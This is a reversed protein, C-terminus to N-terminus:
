KNVPIKFGQMQRNDNIQLMYVGTKIGSIQIINLNGSELNKVIVAHGLMDYLTAVAQSSVPGEIRIKEDSSAYVKLKSNSNGSEDNGTTVYSTHIFFRDSTSTNAAVTIKYNGNSLDTFKNFARDELIVKCDSPLNIVKSSFVVEGGNKFDLGVPIIMKNFDYNPLAQIAFPIGYDDVLLTYVALDGSGKFMGADYTPDLGTTMSSNFAIVTSSSLNNAAVELNITPWQSESKLALANNHLQMAPTFNVTTATPAMKVFFAQGLQVQYSPSANSITTYQGAQENYADPKEWVYIGYAPDINSNTVGNLTLFNNANSNANIHIASTYLNGVCNWSDATTTASQNGSYPIGTLTVVSNTGTRTAYGIGSGVNGSQSNTYFDSWNNLGPEYGMMGRSTGNTEINANAGLFNAITQGSLPSSVLHWGGATMWREADTTGSGTVASTILSGTGTADSQIILGNTTNIETAGSVTLQKLAPISLVAGNKVLVNKALAAINDTQTIAPTGEWVTTSIDTAWNNYQVNNSSGGIQSWGYTTSYFRGTYDTLFDRSDFINTSNYNAITSPATIYQQNTLGNMGSELFDLEAIADGTFVALRSSLKFMTTWDTPILAFDDPNPTNNVVDSHAAFIINYVKNPSTGTVTRTANYKVTGATNNGSFDGVSTILWTSATNNFTTNNFNFKVTAGWMYTGAQDCKVQVDFQLHDVASLRIIRPNAFRYSLQQAFLAGSLFLLFLISIIKKM